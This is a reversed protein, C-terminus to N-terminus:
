KVHYNKISYVFAILFLLPVQMTPRDLPFNLNADILYYILCIMLALSLFDGKSKLWLLTHKLIEKFLFFFFLLYTLFGFFGTEAFIEIFDNHAFYPVVYSYMTKSDYKISLLKWNGIGCGLLPNSSIYTIAQSYFRLRESTSQDNENIVISSVRNEISIEDSQNISFKFFIFAVILPLIFFSYQRLDSKIKQKLIMRKLFLMCFVFVISFSIALFATRSSLLLIIYFALTIILTIISRLIINNSRYLLILCIPIKMMFVMAAINKNGYVSKIANSYKFSFEEYPVIQIIQYISGTLDLILSILITYLLTNWNVKKYLSFYLVILVSSTLVYIDTIKVISEIYNIAYTASICSILLLGLISKFINSEFVKLISEKEFFIIYFIYISNIVSLHFWHQAKPDIVTWNPYYFISVIIIFYLSPLFKKM